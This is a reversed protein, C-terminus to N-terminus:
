AEIPQGICHREWAAVAWAALDIGYVRLFAAESGLGHVGQDGQHHEGCLPAVFRHDRRRVKGPARMVHHVAAPRRCVLCGLSAVHSLHERESADPASKAKPKIRVHAVRGENRRPKDRRQRLPSRRMVATGNAARPQGAEM